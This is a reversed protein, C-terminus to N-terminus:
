QAHICEDFFPPLKALSRDARDGDPCLPKVVSDQMCSPFVGNKCICQPKDETRAVIFDWESLQKLPAQCYLPDMMGFPGDNSVQGNIRCRPVGGNKCGFNTM